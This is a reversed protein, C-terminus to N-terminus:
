RDDNAPIPYTVWLPNADTDVVGVTPVNLMACEGLLPGNEMPNMVVVLDPRMPPLGAVKGGMSKVEKDFEDVVKLRCRGLIQTSNTLSGPVWREFLHYGGALEAAKVVAREQGARTGVFLILGGRSAVATVVKAARRLHAATADLSIIHTNDRIGFIYQANAPNWRSTAAGM